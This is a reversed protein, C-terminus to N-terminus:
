VRGGLVEDYRKLEPLEVRVNPIATAPPALLQTIAHLEPLADIEILQELEGALQAEYGKAALALLGVMTRCAEREPRQAILREWTRRYVARPFAADRHVWRALAAPKRQLAQVLHRYDIVKGWRSDASKKGRPARLVCVGGLWGEIHEAYERVMLRHGILRSTASYLVRNVIFTGFKSVRVPVEAYEATRRAPLARLVAREAEFRKGLRANMRQVVTAVLAEYQARTEFNRSGRLRLAQDIAVKLSGNRAEISGNEHSQGPNCRSARMGYHACLGEYRRTLEEREALNNFAASLSDTRHEEPVGGLRWLAAQLGASLALFSEGGEVVEAHRWGSHALAFQYLRHDFSAGGIEVELDDAVTFDSLGLRGPPHEQAFYVEREAGHLARWQRLRRQLTRLVAHPYQGPHRRQLEELLTVANLLADRELLPVVESEWVAALPDERTRWRRPGRQSPLATAREVRRATRVSMGAKAAATEQSSVLRYRKYENVQRDTIRKGPVWNGEVNV